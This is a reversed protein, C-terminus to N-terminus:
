FVDHPRHNEANPLCGTLLRRGEVSATVPQRAAPGPRWPSRPHVGVWWGHEGRFLPAHGWFIPLRTILPAGLMDIIMPVAALRTPLGVLILAGCGIEFVGDGTGYAAVDLGYEVVLVLQLVGSQLDVVGLGLLLAFM